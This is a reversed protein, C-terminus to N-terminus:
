GQFSKGNNKEIICLHLYEKDTENMDLMFHPTSFQM